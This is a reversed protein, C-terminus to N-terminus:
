GFACTVHKTNTTPITAQSQMSNMWEGNSIASARKLSSSHFHCFAHLFVSKCQKGRQGRGRGWRSRQLVTHKLLVDEWYALSSLPDVTSPHHIFSFHWKSLCEVQPLDMFRTHSLKDRLTLVSMRKTSKLSVLCDPQFTQAQWLLFFSSWVGKTWDLLLALKLLLRYVIVLSSFQAHM